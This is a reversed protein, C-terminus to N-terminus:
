RHASNRIGSWWRAFITGAATVAAIAAAALLATRYAAVATGDDAGTRAGAQEALTLLLAVGLATGLQTATNVLGSASGQHDTSVSSVGLNTSAVASVGIGLGSVAMGVGVLWLGGAVGIRSCLLIGAAIAGLGIAITATTGIRRLLRASLASGPVVALSFPLILLGISIASLGRVNQAYLAALTASSSTSATNAAAVACAIVVGPTLTNRDLLPGSSTREIIVFVVFLAVAVTLALIPSRGRGSQTLQSAYILALLAGTITLAGAVDLGGESQGRSETLYSTGPVLAVVIVPVNVLFVARWGLTDTLVGGIFLGSAGGIAGAATWVALARRRAAPETFTATLLALAAPVVVAAAIGQLARGLVLLPLSPATGCVVSAAGFVALGVRLLRRRGYLDALRGTLMMLAGFLLAYVSVVLQVQGVTADLERQISPLAVVVVTVALVDIFQVVCLVMLAIRDGRRPNGRTTMTMVEEFLAPSNIVLDGTERHRPTFRLFSM